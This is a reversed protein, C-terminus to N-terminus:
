EVQSSPGSRLAMTYVYLVGYRQKMLSISALVVALFVANITCLIPSGQFASSQLCKQHLYYYYYLRSM